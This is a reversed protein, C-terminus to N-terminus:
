VTEVVGRFRHVRLRVYLTDNEANLYWGEQRLDRWHRPERSRQLLRGDCRVASPSTGKIMLCHTHRIPGIEIRALAGHPGKECRLTCTKSSVGDFWEYSTQDESYLMFCLNRYCGVANGVGDGVAYQEGLNLPLVAGARVFVPILEKPAPFDLVRPGKQTEGTWLSHWTGEPLYVPWSTRDEEVVPAVLLHDGFLYQYPYDRCALDAPIEVPLARMLPVGSQSSKWAESYIYPLLNMRVNAYKRFVPIVDADCTREQINWPTRDRCPERHENYESHYQMIPCFAAMATARLYLEASPIEGGFGALDWGWFPIGSIGANLGALIL